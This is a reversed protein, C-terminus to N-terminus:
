IKVFPSRHQDKKKKPERKSNQTLPFAPSAESTEMFIVMTHDGETTVHVGLEETLGSFIYDCVAPKGGDSIFTVSFVSHFTCLETIQTLHTEDNDRGKLLNVFLLAM